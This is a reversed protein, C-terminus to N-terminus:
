SLIDIIKVKFIGQGIHITLEQDPLLDATSRVIKHDTQRVVAYGRKLVAQPDLAILKQQLLQCKTTVQTLVRSTSPLNSLRTRLQELHSLEQQMRERVVEIVRNVREQHEIVLQNYDPVVREAAATPTHVSVDAVLDALSEDRQHGIGTIVPIQSLAIARVVREDNFCSLDEVSGGGRALIIVQARGDRNVREIATVISMPADEGQVTAPSLLLHLRPYRQWLTRQIDGWAAATVSTVVAITQPHLPLPRKRQSDFLGEAQLRSRLQQYRLAQLGEGVALVQFVTLRYEGRKAYLRISGLVLIQEGPKPEQVLRLRQSNWIVCSIASDVQPDCLTFFLGKPHDHLSSVEGIVWVQQLQYDGELLDQIYTTLGSVSLATESFSVSM